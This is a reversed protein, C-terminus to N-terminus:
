GKVLVALLSQGFPPAAVRELRSLSPVIWRDFVAIQGHPHAQLRTVHSHFWWGFFGLSNFYRAKRVRLGVTGALRYLDPRTYRRFHGLNRDVPGYLAPFAPVILVIVGAPALISAMNQLGRRDDEIHELVNLAVCSDPQFRALECFAQSGADVAVTHLNGHDPFRRRLRDLYEPERDVGIVAERDLLLETFNGIGCGIEVVRRGLEPLVLSGQWALYRRADALQEQAHLLYEYQERQTNASVQM